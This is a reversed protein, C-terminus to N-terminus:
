GGPGPRRHLLSLFYDAVLNFGGNGGWGGMESVCLFDTIDFNKIYGGGGGRDRGVLDRNCIYCFDVM